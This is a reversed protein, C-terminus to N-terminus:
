VTVEKPANIRDAIILQAGAIELEFEVQNFDAHMRTLRDISAVIVYDADRLAHLEDLM